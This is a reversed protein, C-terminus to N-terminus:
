HPLLTLPLVLGSVMRQADFGDGLPVPQHLPPVLRSPGRRHAHRERRLKELEVHEARAAPLELLDIQALYIAMRPECRESCLREVDLGATGPLIAVAFGEVALQAVPAEVPFDEVTQLLSSDDDLLPAVM